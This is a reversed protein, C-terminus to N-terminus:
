ADKRGTVILMGLGIGRQNAIAIPETYGEFTELREDGRFIMTGAKKSFLEAAQLVTLEDSIRIHLGVSDEAYSLVNLTTGDNLTLKIM